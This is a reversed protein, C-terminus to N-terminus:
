VQFEDELHRGQNLSLFHLHFVKMLIGTKSQLMSYKLACHIFNYQLQLSILKNTEENIIIKIYNNVLKMQHDFSLFIERFVLSHEYQSSDSMIVALVRLM